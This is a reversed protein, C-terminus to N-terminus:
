RIMGSTGIVSSYITMSKVIVQNLRLGVRDGNVNVTVSDEEFQYTGRNVSDCSGEWGFIHAGNEEHVELCLTKEIGVSTGWSAPTSFASSVNDVLKQITTPSILFGPGNFNSESPLIAKLTSSVSNLVYTIEIGAKKEGGSSSLSSARTVITSADSTGSLGGNFSVNQATFGLGLLTATADGSCGFFNFRTGNGAAGSRASQGCTGNNALLAAFIADNNNEKKSAQFLEACNGLSVFVVFVIIPKLFNM